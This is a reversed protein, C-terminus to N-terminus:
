KLKGLGIQNSKTNTAFYVNKLFAAGLLWASDGQANGSSVASICMGSNKNSGAFILDRSNITFKHGGSFTFSLTADTTCPIEYGGQGDSSAGHIANHIADAQSKPAIILSTGTDLTARHTNSGRRRRSGLVSKSGVSVDDLPVEWYGDNSQNDFETISGSVQSSDIAGFTIQGHNNNSGDAVRGLRYGIVPQQVLNQEAMMDIVTKSGLVSLSSGGLGILGDFPIDKGGFEPTEHTSVGFQMNKVTMGAVTMDDHARHVLVSGTGYSIKYQKNSLKLSKSSQTGLKNQTSCSSCDSGAVWTDSSGSDILMKFNNNSSGIQITAFYGVDNAEIDLGITHPSSPDQAKTVKNHAAAQKIRSVESNDRAVFKGSSRRSGRSHETNPVSRATQNMTSADLPHNDFTIARGLMDVTNFHDHKDRRELWRRRRDMAESLEEASLAGKNKMSALRARGHNLHRQLVIWADEKASRKEVSSHTLNFQMSPSDSELSPFSSEAQNGRSAFSSIGVPASHASVIGITLYALVAFMPLVLRIM